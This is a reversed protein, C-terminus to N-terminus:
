LRKCVGGEKTGLLWFFHVFVAISVLGLAGFASRQVNHIRSFCIHMGRLEDVGGRGEQEIFV